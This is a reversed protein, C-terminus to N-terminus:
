PSRAFPPQDQGACIDEALTRGGGEWLSIEETDRVTETKALLLEQAQKLTLEGM